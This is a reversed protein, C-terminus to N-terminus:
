ILRNNINTTNLAERYTLSVPEIEKEATRLSQLIAEAIRVEVDPNYAGSFFLGSIGTGWGGISNHTHTAGLYINEFPIDSPSLLEKLKVTVTPPIILLDGSVIAARTDGKKLVVTRVYVSDHIQTFPKGRRNGYGAMPGTSSPT